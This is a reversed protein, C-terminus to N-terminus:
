QYTSDGNYIITTDVPGTVPQDNTWQWFLAGRYAGGRQLSALLADYTATFTATRDQTGNVAQKGFQM